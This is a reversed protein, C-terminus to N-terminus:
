RSRWVRPLFRPTRHAYEAFATLAPKTLFLRLAVPFVTPLAAVTQPVEPLM